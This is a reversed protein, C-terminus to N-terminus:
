VQQTRKRLRRIALESVGLHQYAAMMAVMAAVSLRSGSDNEM